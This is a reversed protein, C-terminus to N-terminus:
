TSSPSAAAKFAMGSKTPLSPSVGSTNRPLCNNRAFYKRCSCSNAHCMRRMICAAQVTGSGAATDSLNCCHNASSPLKSWCAAQVKASSCGNMSILPPGPVPLVVVTALSSASSHESPRRGRMAKTAGVPLAPARKDCASCSATPRSFPSGSWTASCKCRM